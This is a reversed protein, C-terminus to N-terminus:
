DPQRFGHRHLREAADFFGYTRRFAPDRRPAAHGTATRWLEREIEEIRDLLEAPGRPVPIDAYTRRASPYRVEDPPTRPLMGLVLRAHTLAALGASGEAARPPRPAPDAGLLRAELLSELLAARREADTQPPSAAVGVAGFTLYHLEPLGAMEARLWSQFGTRAGELHPLTRRALYDAGGPPLAGEDLFSDLLAQTRTVLEVLRDFDAFGSGELGTM